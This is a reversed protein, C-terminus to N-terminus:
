ATKGASSPATLMSFKVIAIKDIHQDIRVAFLEGGDVHQGGVAVFGGVSQIQQLLFLRTGCTRQHLLTKRRILLMASRHRPVVVFGFIFNQPLALPRFFVRRHLRFIGSDFAPKAFKHVAM